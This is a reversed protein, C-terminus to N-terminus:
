VGLGACDPVLHQAGFDVIINGAADRMDEDLEPEVHQLGWVGMVFCDAEDPSCTLEKKIIDKPLILLKGTSGKTTYRSAVPLQRMLEASKIPGCKFLRLQEATYFYAEARRNGFRLQSWGIKKKDEIDTAKQASNFYQVAYEAEDSALGDAVGLGVGICDVIFNKTGILQAMLKGATVLENTRHRDLITREEVVEGNVMGKIKCADGGFAPDISVIKRVDKFSVSVEAHHQNCLALLESTILTMEETTIRSCKIEQDYLSRPIQPDNRMDELESAPLIDTKEGDLRSVFWRAKSKPPVGCDPLVGTEHRCAADDFMVAAHNMGKPTYLFMAWRFAEYNDLHPPLPGAIIPRFVEAWV